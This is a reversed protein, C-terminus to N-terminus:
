LKLLEKVEKRKVKITTTKPLAEKSIVVNTPRKYHALQDSLTKIDLKIM